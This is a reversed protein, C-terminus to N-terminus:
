RGTSADKWAPRAIMCAIFGGLNFLLTWAAWVLVHQWPARRRRAVVLVIALLCATAIAPPGTPLSNRMVSGLWHQQWIPRPGQGYGFQPPHLLCSLARQRDADQRCRAFTARTAVGYPLPQLAAVLTAARAPRHQQVHLRPYLSGDYDLEHRAVLMIDGEGDVRFLEAIERKDDPAEPYLHRAAFLTDDRLAFQFLGPKWAAGPEPFELQYDTRPQPEIVDYVTTSLRIILMQKGTVPTHSQSPDTWNLLQIDVHGEDALVEVDRKLLNLRYVGNRTTWLILGNRTKGRLFEGAGICAEFPHAKERETSFGNRGLYGIPEGQLLFGRFRRQRTDYRWIETKGDSAPVPFEVTEAPAPMWRPRAFRDGSRDTGIVYHSFELHEFPMHRREGQWTVEGDPSLIAIIQEEPRRTPDRKEPAPFVDLAGDPRFRKGSKMVRLVGKEKETFQAMDPRDAERRRKHPVLVFIMEIAGQLTHLLALIVVTFMLLRCLRALTALRVNM